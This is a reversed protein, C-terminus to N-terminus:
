KSKGQKAQKSKPKAKPAPQWMAFLREAEEQPKEPFKRMILEASPQDPGNDPADMLLWFVEYHDTYLPNLGTIKLM